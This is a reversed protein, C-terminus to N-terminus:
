KNFYHVGFIKGLLAKKMDISQKLDEVFLDINTQVCQELVSCLCNTIMAHVNKQHSSSMTLMFTQVFSSLHSVCLQKSLRNLCKMASEM